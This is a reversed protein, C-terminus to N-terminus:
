GSHPHWTFERWSLDTRRVACIADYDTGAPIARLQWAAAEEPQDHVAILAPSKRPDPEVEFSGLHGALGQSGAKLYAEKSTWCRFFGAAQLSEPLGRIAEYEGTTFFRRAIGDRAAVDANQEIDVGIPCDRVLGCLLRGGSHSLNFQLDDQALYPRGRETHLLSVRASPCGLYSALLARLWLRGFAFDQRKRDIRFRAYREREEESLWGLPWPIEEADDPYRAHWVHVTGVSLPEHIDLSTKHQFETM